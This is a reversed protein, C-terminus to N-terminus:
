GKLNKEYLQMGKAIEMADEMTNKEKKEKLLKIVAKEYVDLAQKKSEAEFYKQLQIESKEIFAKMEKELMEVEEKHKDMMNEIHSQATRELEKCKKNTSALELERQKLAQKLTEKEKELGFILGEVESIRADINKLITSFIKKGFLLFFAIFAISIWFGATLFNDFM